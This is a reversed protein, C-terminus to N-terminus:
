RFQSYSNVMLLSFRLTNSHHQGICLHVFHNSYIVVIRSDALMLLMFQPIKIYKPVALHLFTDLYNYSITHCLLFSKYVAFIFSPIKSLIHLIFIFLTAWFIVINGRRKWDFDSTLEAEIYSKLSM